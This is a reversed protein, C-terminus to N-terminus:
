KWGYKLIFKKEQKPKFFRWQFKDLCKLYGGSITADKNKTDGSFVTKYNRVSPLPWNKGRV